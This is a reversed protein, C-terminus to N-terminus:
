KKEWRVYSLCSCFIFFFTVVRVYQGFMFSLMRWRCLQVFRSPKARLGEDHNSSWSPSTESDNDFVPVVCRISFTIPRRVIDVPLLYSFLRKGAEGYDRSAGLRGEPLWHLFIDAWWCIFMFKGMSVLAWADLAFSHVFRFNSAVQFKMAFSIRTSYAYM